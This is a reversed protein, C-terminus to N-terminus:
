SDHTWRSTSARRGRGYGRRTSPTPAHSGRLSILSVAPAGLFSVAAPGNRGSVVSRLLCRATKTPQCAEDRYALPISSRSPGHDDLRRRWFRESVVVAPESGARETAPSLLRGAAPAVGLAEFYEPSVLHGFVREAGQEGDAAVSFPVPGLHATAGEIVGDLERIREFAPYSLRADVAVLSDPDRAGPLPALYDAHVRSFSYICVAMGLALSAVGIATIGPHARLVRFGYRLDQRLVELWRGLRVDRVEEKIREASGLEIRARRRAASPSLGRREWEEARAQVHFALEDALEREFRTRGVLAAFTLRLRTWM